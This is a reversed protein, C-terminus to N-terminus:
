KREGRRMRITLFGCSGKGDKNEHRRWRLGSNSEEIRTEVKFKCQQSMVLRYWNLHSSHIENSVLNFLLCYEWFSGLGKRNERRQSGRQEPNSREDTSIDKDFTVQDGVITNRDDINIDTNLHAM